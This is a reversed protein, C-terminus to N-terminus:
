NGVLPAIIPNIKPIIPKTEDISKQYNSYNVKDSKIADNIIKRYIKQM